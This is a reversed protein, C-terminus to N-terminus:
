LMIVGGAALGWLILRLTVAAAIGAALDDLMVGLGGPYDQLKAIGLPKLIDFFRFLGFGVLMYVWVYGTMAMVPQLGLFVLPVAVVEDLIIEGPDRKFMRREAEGCFIIGIWIFVAALLVQMVFPQHHFFVTYVLLGVVSGNTGPAKGWYGVPGITALGNVLNSPLFGLWPYQFRDKM